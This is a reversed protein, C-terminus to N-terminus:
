YTMIYVPYCHASSPYIEEGINERSLLKTRSNLLSVRKSNNMNRYSSRNELYELVIMLYTSIFSNNRKYQANYIVLVM